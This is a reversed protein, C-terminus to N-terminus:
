KETGLLREYVRVYDGCMRELSYYESVVARNYKGLLDREERTMSLLQVADDLLAEETPLPCGRCCFNTKVAEELREETFIGMHGQNGSLIVPCEAAMAELASRSVACFVDAAAAFGDIDYRPGTLIIAENGAAANEVTEFDNGGGVIVLKADPFRENIRPMVRCLMKAPASRDEDLRSIYVILRDTENIGLEDRICASREDSPAFRAMDIGNVTVTIQESPVGYERVLYERLDESVAITAEGWNTIKRWLANVAFDLHATATYRFDLRRKLLGCLFAPIRAHAHVIDYDGSAILRRLGSLSRAVAMPSRSNLPLIHQAIGEAALEDAYAGGASAVEPEHGMARLGRCLEAIHTEAGGIDMGTTLMLIKM